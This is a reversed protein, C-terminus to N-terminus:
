VSGRLEGEGPKQLTLEPFIFEEHGMIWTQNEDWM